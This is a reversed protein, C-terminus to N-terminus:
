ALLREGGPGRPVTDPDDGIEAGKLILEALLWGGPQARESIESRPWRVEVQVHVFAYPHRTYVPRIRAQVGLPRLMEAARVIAVMARAKGDCDEFRRRLMTPTDALEEGAHGQSVRFDSEYHINDRVWRQIARTRAEADNMNLFRRAFEQVSTRLSDMGAMADLWRAKEQLTEFRVVRNTSGKPIRSPNWHNQYKATM